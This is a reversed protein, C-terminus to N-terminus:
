QTKNHSPSGALTIWKWKTFDDVGTEMGERGFGAEGDSGFPVEPEQQITMDNLHVMGTNLSRALTFARDVDRTFVAASLMAPGSNALRIADSETEVTEITVVPGFIEERAIRMQETVCGLVTPNLRNDTWQNGCLVEAGLRRADAITASIRRRSADDIVPGIVTSRDRLDGMPLSKAAGVFAAIFADAISRQVIVRSSAMCIQGQYIFGGKLAAPIAKELDADDLIVIPNKGGLELTVRKQFQGCDAHVQKGVAASGTFSVASILPHRILAPGIEAGLGYVLNFAGDPLGAEAYLTALRDAIQPARRSPLGVFSNGLALPLSSHKVSKILPVNFPTIGAVVGLPERIAISMRGPVDSPYTRGTMRRAMSANARLVRTAIDIEMMAKTIPSGIEQILLEAWADRDRQLIEAARLLIGERASPGLAALGPQVNAASQVAADVDAATGRAVISLREDTEPNTNILTASCSSHRHKGGIWHLVECLGGHQNTEKM